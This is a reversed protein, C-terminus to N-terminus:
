EHAQNTRVRNAHNKIAVFVKWFLEPYIKNLVAGIFVIYMCFYLWLMALILMTLSGYLASFQGVQGVYISFLSSFLLWALSTFCAGPLQM